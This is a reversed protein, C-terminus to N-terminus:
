RKPGNRNTLRVEVQCHKALAHVRILVVEYPVTTYYDNIVTANFTPVLEVEPETRICALHPVSNMDTFFCYNFM